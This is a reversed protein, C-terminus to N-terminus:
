RLKPDLADRVAEGLLIFSLVAISLAGAPFLLIHRARGWYQQADSIQLGWSIAPPQIGIGLFSYTAEAAVIGGLSITTVVIVPALANPMIHRLLIRMRSAGLARAASIYDSDKISIVSSRTIRATSMWGFATLALVVGWIGPLNLVVLIILGALFYPIGNFIDLIRSLVSDTKGGWFGAFAGIPTGIVFTLFVTVFGVSLSNRTGYVVNAYVDCGQFDRGFWHESSPGELSNALNCQSADHADISSFLGPAIAVALFFAIMVLSIWFVTSHRLERWADVALSGRREESAAPPASVPGLEGGPSTEAVAPGQGSSSPGAHGSADIDTM